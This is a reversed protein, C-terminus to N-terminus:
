LSTEFIRKDNGRDDPRGDCLFVRAGLFTSGWYRKKLHPFEEFMYSATRGKIRRMIESQALNPPASVLIHIHDKSVVGRIIRIEFAEGSWTNDFFKVVLESSKSWGLVELHDFSGGIVINPNTITNKIFYILMRVPHHQTLVEM